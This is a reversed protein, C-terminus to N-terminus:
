EVRIGPVLMKVEALADFELEGDESTIRFSVNAPETSRLSVRAPQDGFEAALAELLYAKPSDIGRDRFGQETAAQNGRIHIRTVICFHERRDVSVVELLLDYRQEVYAGKTGWFFFYDFDKATGRSRKDSAEAKRELLSLL